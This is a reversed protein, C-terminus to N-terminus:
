AIERRRKRTHAIVVLRDILPAFVGAGLSAFIVGGPTLSGDSGSFVFVLLGALLGYYWRGLNTAAASVPDCILFSLGFIVAIGISLFDVEYGFSLTLLVLCALVAVVIRWQILGFLLLLLAGPFTAFAVSQSLPELQVQTFSFLLLALAVTAPSLFGFGRGGFIHEGLVLGLSLTLVLQWVPLVLPVMITAVLAVTVGHFGYSRKRVAGFVLDWFIATSLSAILIEVRDLGDEAIRVVLPCVLALAQLTSVGAIGLAPFAGIHTIM